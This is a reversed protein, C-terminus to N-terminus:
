VVWLYGEAKALSTVTRENVNVQDKHNDCKSQTILKVCAKTTISYVICRTHFSFSCANVMRLTSSPLMVGGSVNTAV